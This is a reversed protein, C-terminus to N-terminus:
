LSLKSDNTRAVIHLQVAAVVEGNYLKKRALM